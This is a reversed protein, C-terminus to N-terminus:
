VDEFGRFVMEIPSSSSLGYSSTITHFLSMIDGDEVRLYAVGNEKRRHVQHGSEAALKLFRGQDAVNQEGLLVWDLGTRGREKSLQVNVSMDEQRRQDRLFMFSAFSGDEGCESLRAAIEGVANVRTRKRPLNDIVSVKRRYYWSIGSLVVALFLLLRGILSLDM